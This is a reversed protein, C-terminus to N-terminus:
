KWLLDPLNAEIYKFIAAGGVLNPHTKDPMYKSLDQSTEVGTSLAMAIDIYRYGLGRIWPNVEEIWSTNDATGTNLKPVTILIPEAGKEKALDILHEIYEKFTAVEVGLSDNVGVNYIIYQPSITNIEVAARRFVQSSKAGGSGSLFVNGDLAEKLLYGYGCAPNRGANEVYSDGWIAIKPYTPATSYMQAKYVNVTGTVCRFYLGGWCRCQGTRRNDDGPVSSSEFVETITNTPCLANYIRVTQKNISDKEISIVFKEGNQINLASIDITRLLTSYGTGNNGTGMRIEAITGNEKVLVVLAGDAISLANGAAFAGNYGFLFEPTTGNPIAFIIDIKSKDMTITDKSYLHGGANVTLYNGNYSVDYSAILRSGPSNQKFDTNYIWNLPERVIKSKAVPFLSVKPVTAKSDPLESLVMNPVDGSRVSVGIYAAGTPAVLTKYPLPYETNEEAKYAGGICVQSANYWSYGLTLFPFYYTRGEHVPILDTYAMIANDTPASTGHYYKGIHIIDPTILNSEKITNFVANEGIYDTYIYLSNNAKDLTDKTWHGSPLVVMVGYIYSADPTFSRVRTNANAVPLEYGEYHFTSKDRKYVAVNFGTDNYIFVESTIDEPIYFIARSQIEPTADVYSDNNTGVNAPRFRGVIQKRYARNCVSGDFSAIKSAVSDDHEIIGNLSNTKDGTVKADAASGSVTLTKDTEFATSNYVGGSVWATGNNYYWNGNVYGTENGVYVYIKSTDTMAAATAATFPYGYENRIASLITNAEAVKQSASDVYSQGVTSVETKKEETYGDLESKEEETKADIADLSDQLNDVVVDKAEQAEAAAAIATAAALSETESDHLLIKVEKTVYNVNVTRPM